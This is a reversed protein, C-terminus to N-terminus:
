RAAPQRSIKTLKAPIAYECASGGEFICNTRQVRGGVLAEIWHKVMGAAQHHASCVRAIPCNHNALTYRRDAAKELTPMFGRAAILKTARKLRLDGSLKAVAPADSSIWRDGVQRLVRATQGEGGRAVADLVDVAFREYEQQFARDAQATLGYTISPRRGTAQLGAAVVLGEALLRALQNAAATRTIHLERALENITLKGRIRLANLALRRRDLM